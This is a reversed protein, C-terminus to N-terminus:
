EQGSLNRPLHRSIDKIDAARGRMYEDDMDEIRHRRVQDQSDRLVVVNGMVVWNYVPKGLFKM